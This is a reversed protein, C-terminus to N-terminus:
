KQPKNLKELQKEVAEMQVKLFTKREELLTKEEQASAPLIAHRGGLGGGRRFGRGMGRANERQSAVGGGCPGMGRGIPGTGIPGTRDMGPM